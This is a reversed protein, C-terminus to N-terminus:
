SAIPLQNPRDQDADAKMAVLHHDLESKFASRIKCNEQVFPEFYNPIVIQSNDADLTLFGSKALEGKDLGLHFMDAYEANHDLLLQQLAVGLGELAPAPFIGDVIRLAQANNAHCLRAVLLGLRRDGKRIAYILYRYFPHRLFRQVFFAGSKRPVQRKPWLEDLLEREELLQTQTLSELTPIATATPVPLCRQGDKPIKAIQFSQKNPHLVYSQELTSVQYGLAAFIPAVAQNIGVTGIVIHPVKTCLHGLLALGCGSPADDRVKWLALWIGQEPALGQDFRSTCIFGLVGQMGADNRAIVYDLDRGCSGQHQWGLLAESKALVHEKSWHEGIFAMLERVQNQACFEIKLPSPM